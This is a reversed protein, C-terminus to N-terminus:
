SMVAKLVHQAGFLTPWIKSARRLFASRFRNPVWCLPARFLNDPVAVGASARYEAISFGASVLLSKASEATFWRLHTADMIGTPQYRFRGQMLESRVSWHAVNPVSVIVFGNPKLFERCSFLVSQPAPLHELVDAFVIVDLRGVAEALEPGFRAVIVEVGRHKAQAAREPDPEVGIFDSRCSDALVKTLTGEGCGVDLVKSGRPIMSAIIGPVEHADLPRPVAYRLADVPGQLLGAANRDPSAPIDPARFTEKAFSAQREAM